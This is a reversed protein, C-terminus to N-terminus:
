GAAALKELVDISETCYISYNMKAMRNWSDNVRQKARLELWQKGCRRCHKFEVGLSYGTTADAERLGATAHIEMAERFHGQGAESKFGAFCAAVPDWSVFYRTQSGQEKMYLSCSECYPASRTLNFIFYGGCAFGLILLAAYLYGGAGLSVSDGAPQGITLTTHTLAFKLYAPFTMWDRVSEGDVKLYQYKLWYIFFFNAGSVALMNVFFARGPRFSLFRSGFFYGSAAVFGSLIAGMPVVFGYVFGYIACDYRLEMYVLGAATLLTTAIGFM